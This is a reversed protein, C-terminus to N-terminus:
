KCKQGVRNATKYHLNKKTRGHSQMRFIKQTKQKNEKKRKIQKIKNKRKQETSPDTSTKVIASEVLLLESKEVPEKEIRTQLLESKEVPEKEIRTQLLESNEVTAKKTRTQLLESNEVTAKEIRAQLLETIPKHKTQHRWLGSKSKYKRGCIVCKCIYPLQADLSHRKSAMHKAFNCKVKTFYHCKECNYEM